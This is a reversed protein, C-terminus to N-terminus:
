KEKYFSNNPCDIGETILNVEAATVSRFTIYKGSRKKAKIIYQAGNEPMEPDYDGNEPKNGIATVLTVTYQITFNEQAKNKTETHCAVIGLTYISKNLM